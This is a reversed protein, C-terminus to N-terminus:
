VGHNILDNMICTEGVGCDCLQGHNLELWVTDLVKWWNVNGAVLGWHGWNGERRTGAQKQERVNEGEVEIREEERKGKHNATNNSILVIARSSNERLVQATELASEKCCAGALPSRLSLERPEAQWRRDFILCSSNDRSIHKFLSNRPVSLIKRHKTDCQGEKLISTELLYMKHWLYASLLRTFPKSKERSTIGSLM